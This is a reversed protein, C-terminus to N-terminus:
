EAANKIMDIGENLSEASLAGVAYTVIAGNQGIFITMPLSSAGYAIAAESNIDFLVPFTYGNEALFAKADEMSDGSTMNVMLFQIDPNEEYATQFYPMESKCPPCWSAWLNLVIPKGFHDSLKIPNGNEDEATFDPATEIAETSESPQAAEQTTSVPALSSPAYDDKLRNYLLYAGIFLAISLVTIIIWMLNKKM